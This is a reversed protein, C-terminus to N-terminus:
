KLGVPAKQLKRQLSRRHMGLRKAAHSINGECDNIVRQIHDWEVQSLSPVRVEPTEEGDSKFAALIQEVSVPKTLYNTAGLRVASMATAISGYGTLVVVKPPSELKSIYDVLYLGDQGPMKLDVSVRSVVTNELIAIAESVGAAGIVTAGRAELARILRHRFSEDDDVVLYDFEDDDVQLADGSKALENVAIM